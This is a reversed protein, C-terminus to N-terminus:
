RDAPPRYTPGRDPPRYTPGSESPAAYMASLAALEAPDPPVEAVTEVKGVIEDNEDWELTTIIEVDRTFPRGLSGIFQRRERRIARLLRGEDDWEYRTAGQEMAM